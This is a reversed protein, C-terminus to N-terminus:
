ILEMSCGAPYIAAGLQLEEDPTDGIVLGRIHSASILDHTTAVEDDYPGDTYWWRLQVYTGSLLDHTTSVDDQYPGDSYWWRLQTYSGSLLDHTTAVEDFPIEWMSGDKIVAGLQISEVVEVPYLTTTLIIQNDVPWMYIAAM